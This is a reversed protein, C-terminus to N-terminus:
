PADPAPEGADLGVSSGYTSSTSSLPPVNVLRCDSVRVEETRVTGRSPGGPVQLLAAPVAEARQQTRLSRADARRRARIAGVSSGAAGRAALRRTSSRSRGYSSFQVTSALM